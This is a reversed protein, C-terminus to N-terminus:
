MLRREQSSYYRYAEELREDTPNLEVLLRIVKTITKPETRGGDLGAKGMATNYNSVKMWFSGPTVEGIGETTGNRVLTTRLPFSAGYPLADGQKLNRRAAVYALIDAAQDYVPQKSSFRLPDTVEVRMPEPRGRELEEIMSQLREVSALAMAHKARMKTEWEKAQQLEARLINLDNTAMTFWSSFHTSNGNLNKGM